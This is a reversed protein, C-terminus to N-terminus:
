YVLAILLVKAFTTTARLHAAWAFEGGFGARDAPSALGLFKCVAVPRENGEDREEGDEPGTREIWLRKDPASHGDVKQGDLM